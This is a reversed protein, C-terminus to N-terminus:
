LELLQALEEQLYGIVSDADPFVDPCTTLGFALDDGTSVVTINLGSGDGITSLPYQTVVKAGGYYLDERPGPVNSIVLNFPLVSSEALKLAAATRAAYEAAAPASFNGLQQLLTAPVAKFDEKAGAMAVRVADLRERATALHTPLEPAMASVQNGASDAQDATRTSVPVMAKIPGDPLENHDILWRRMAGACMAMVVDNITCGLATKVQRVDSLSVQGFAFKRASTLSKNFSLRPAPTPPTQPLKPPQMQTMQTTWDAMAKQMLELFQGPKGMVGLYGRSLMEFETPKKEPEPMSAPPEPDPAHPDPSVFAMMLAVCSKGDFAAHHLKTYIAIKGGELGEIVYTEWLPRARDLPRQHIRAVLEALQENTGPEPLAAGRVHYDLDVDQDDYWYPLDIGFPVEALKWRLSTLHPLRAAYMARVTEVNFPGDVTSPDLVMIGATHGTIRSDEMHLFTADVGTLQQM